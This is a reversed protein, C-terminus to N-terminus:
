PLIELSAIEYRILISLDKWDELRLQGSTVTLALDPGSENTIESGTLGSAPDFALLMPLDNSAEPTIGNIQISAADSPM